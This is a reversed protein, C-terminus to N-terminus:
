WLLYGASGAEPRHPQQDGTLNQTARKPDGNIFILVYQHIRGMKRTAHWQRGLRAPMTGLPSMLIMDNYLRAGANHHATVTLNVLERIMGAHDRVEGVIWAAFRDPALCRVTETIIATYADAFDGWAMTSLDAPLDSYVELDHYPPCTLIFDFAGTPFTPM